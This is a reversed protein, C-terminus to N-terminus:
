PSETENRNLIRRKGFVVSSQKECGHRTCLDVSYAKGEKLMRLADETSTGLPMGHHYSFKWAHGKFLCLINM